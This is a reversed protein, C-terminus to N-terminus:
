NWIGPNPNEAGGDGQGDDDTSDNSGTLFKHCANMSIVHMSPCVYKNMKNEIKKTFMNAKNIHIFTQSNLNLIM